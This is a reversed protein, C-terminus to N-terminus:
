KLKLVACIKQIWGAFPYPDLNGQVALISARSLEDVKEDFSTIRTVVGCIHGNRVSVCDVYKPKTEWTEPLTPFDDTKTYCYQYKEDLVDYNVRTGVLKSGVHFRTINVIDLNSIDPNRKLIEARYNMAM